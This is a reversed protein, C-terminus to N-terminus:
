NTPFKQFLILPCLLLHQTLNRDLLSSLFLSADGLSGLQFNLFRFLISLITVYMPRSIIVIWWSRQQWHFYTLVGQKMHGSCCMSLSGRLFLTQLAVADKLFSWRCDDFSKQLVLLRVVRARTLFSRRAASLMIEEKSPLIRSAPFFLYCVWIHSAGKGPSHFTTTTPRDEECM